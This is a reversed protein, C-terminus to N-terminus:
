RGIFDLGTWSDDIIKTDYKKIQSLLNQDDDKTKGVKGNHFEIYFENVYSFTNNALLHPIVDYEGGEIDMKLIIYDDVSFNTKIWNSLDVSKVITPTKSLNGTRKNKCVSSGDHKGLYFDVTGDEIWIACPHFTINKVDKYKDFNYFLKPNAEFTHIDYDKWDDWFKKFNEVSQGHNAGCDIFIKKSM